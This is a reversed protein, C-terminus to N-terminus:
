RSTRLVQSGNAFYVWQDDVVLSASTPTLGDALDILKGEYTLRSVAATARAVGMARLVYTAQGTMQLARPDSSKLAGTGIEKVPTGNNVEVVAVGPPGEVIVGYRYKGNASFALGHSERDPKVPDVTVRTGADLRRGDTQYIHRDEGLWLLTAGTTTLSRPTSADFPMPRVSADAAMDALRMGDASRFFVHNGVTAVTGVGGLGPVASAITTPATGFDGLVFRSIGGDGWVVGDNFKESVDIQAGNTPFAALELSGTGVRVHALGADTATFYLDQVGSDTDTVLAFSVIEGIAADASFITEIPCRGGSCGGDNCARACAGCNLPDNALDADACTVEEGDAGADADELAGGDIVTTDGSADEPPTGPYDDFPIFFSCAHISCAIAAVAACRATKGVRAV